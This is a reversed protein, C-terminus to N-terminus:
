GSLNRLDLHIGILMTGIQEVGVACISLSAGCKVGAVSARDPRTPLRARVKFDDDKLDDASLRALKQFAAKRSPDASDWTLKVNTLQLAATQFNPPEYGAPIECASDRVERGAFSEGEAM